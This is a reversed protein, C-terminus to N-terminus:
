FGIFTKVTNISFTKKLEYNRVKTQTLKYTVVKEYFYRPRMLGYRVCTLLKPLYVAREDPRHDVWTQIAEFVLEETRANLEDDRLIQELENYEIM